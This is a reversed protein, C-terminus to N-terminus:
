CNKYKTMMATQRLFCDEDLIGRDPEQEKHSNLSTSSPLPASLNCPEKSPDNVMYHRAIPHILFVKLKDLYTMFQVLFLQVPSVKKRYYPIGTQFGVINSYSILLTCCCYLRNDLVQWFDHEVFLVTCYVLILNFKSTPNLIRSTLMINELEIIQGKEEILYHSRVM